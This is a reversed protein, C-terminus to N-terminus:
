RTVLRLIGVFAQAITLTGSRQVRGGPVGLRNQTVDFTISFQQGPAPSFASVTGSWQLIHQDLQAPSAQLTFQDPIADTNLGTQRTLETTGAPDFLQITYTAHQAQGFTIEVTVPGGGSAITALPVGPDGSAIVERHRGTAPDM